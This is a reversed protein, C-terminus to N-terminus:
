KLRCAAFASDRDSLLAKVVTNGIIQQGAAGTHGDVVYFMKMVDHQGAFDPLPNIVRVDYRSAIRAVATDLAMPNVGPRAPTNELAVEAASPMLIIAMPVGAASAQKSMSRLMLDVNSLRKQWNETFPPRLYNANDGELLYLNAYTSPNQYMYHQLMMVARSSKIPQIVHYRLWDKKQAEAVKLQPEGGSTVSPDFQLFKAVDYADLSLLLVDPKLALAEGMRLYVDHLPLALVGLNQFEVRRRCANSLAREAVVYYSSNYPVLYGYSSSSGLVAVRISDPPKPGCSETSRYGCANYQNVVWPGEAAKVRSQCNPRFHAGFRGSKVYCPDTEHDPWIFRSAVESVAVICVITLVAILPLLIWDRRPLRKENREQAPLATATSM